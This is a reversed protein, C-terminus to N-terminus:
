ALAEALCQIPHRAARGTGHEIQHRCSVGSAAIVTDASTARVAPLLREEGIKMSLAYHEAEYGFAGAMGCCGSNIESVDWGPLRLMGLLAGTGTLAKQYCHGHVRVRRPEPKWKLSLRGTDNLRALFEEILVAGGALSQARADDPLLDRYEDRFTLLCSPELGVIPVGREAFPALAAVVRRAAVRAHALRGKSIMPRGCCGHEALEVRHGASELVQVAAVGIEPHNFDTYTDVFLVVAPRHASGAPPRHRAYWVRFTQAALRPLVRRRTVGLFREGLWRMAPLSLALNALVAVRQASHSVSHIDAFLRSRLPVGHAAQYHDLFEYKIKAM